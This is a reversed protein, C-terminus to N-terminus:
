FLCYPDIVAVFSLSILCFDSALKALTHLLSCSKVGVNAKKGKNAQWPLSQIKYIKSAVM